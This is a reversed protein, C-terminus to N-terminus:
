GAADDDAVQDGVKYGDRVMEPRKRLMEAVLVACEKLGWNQASVSPQSVLHSLEAISEDLHKELYADLVTRDVM